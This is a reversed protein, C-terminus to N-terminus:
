IYIEHDIFLMGYHNQPGFEMKPSKKSWIFNGFSPHIVRGCQLGFETKPSQSSIEGKSGWLYINERAGDLIKSLWV